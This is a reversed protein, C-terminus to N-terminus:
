KVFKCKVTGCKECKTKLCNKNNKTKEVKSVGNGTRTKCKLCYLKDTLAGGEISSPHNLANGDEDVEVAVPLPLNDLEDMYM